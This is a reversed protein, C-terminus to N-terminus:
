EYLDQIQQSIIAYLQAYAPYEALAKLHKELTKQDGRRAPGTQIDKPNHDFSKSITEEVLPKLLSANINSERMIDQAVYMMYNTFNNAFVAGIHLKARQKSDVDEVQNSLFDALTHLVQLSEEDSAELLMPIRDWDPTREESFTQLPYFVGYHHSVPSLVEMNVTGSTHAIIGKVSLKGALTQIVDDKVAVIYVDSDTNIEEWNSVAPVGLEDALKQARFPRRSYVQRIEVFPNLARGMHSAVNGSGIITVALKKM